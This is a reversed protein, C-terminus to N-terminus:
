LKVIFLEEMIKYQKYTSINQIYYILYFLNNFNTEGM